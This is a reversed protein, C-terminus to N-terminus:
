GVVSKEPGAFVSRLKQPYGQLYLAHYRAMAPELTPMQENMAQALKDSCLTLRPSRLARLGASRYSGPAILEEDFGFQRALLRGFAYKSLGEGSVVHYLGNLERELMHLLIEVLDNVLLPSFYLDTFGSIRRGASLHNFFYESLSRQGQWSWGFFNVRAILADPNAEAVAREGELKTRAYLNVPNPTDTETYDGRLGDFVADTSIHLMRVGQRAAGSALAGPLWANTLYAEEPFLECRDVETMAACHLVTDPRAQEFVREIQGPMTLDAQIMEFPTRGQAARASEGRLVGVVEFRGAAQLALNLGLLGSVGTVLLRKV